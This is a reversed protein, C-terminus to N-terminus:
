LGPLWQPEGGEIASGLWVMVMIMAMIMILRIILWVLGHDYGYDYDYYCKAEGQWVGGRM